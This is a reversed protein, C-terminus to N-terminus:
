VGKAKKSRGAPSKKRGARHRELYEAIARRIRRDSVAPYPRDPDDRSDVPPVDLFRDWERWATQVRVSKGRRVKWFAAAKGKLSYKLGRVAVHGAATLRGLGRRIEAATFVAHNLFDGAAIIGSLEAGARGQALAIAHLLWSDSRRFAPYNPNPDPGSESCPRAPSGRRPPM